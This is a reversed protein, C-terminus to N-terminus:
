SISERLHRLQGQTRLLTEKLSTIEATLEAERERWELRMMEHGKDECMQEIKQDHVANKLRQVENGLKRNEKQVEHLKDRLSLSSEKFYTVENTLKLIKKEDETILRMTLPNNHRSGVFEDSWDQRSKYRPAQSQIFCQKKTVVPSTPETKMLKQPTDSNQQTELDRPHKRVTNDLTSLATRKESM